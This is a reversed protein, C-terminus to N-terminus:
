LGQRATLARRRADASGFAPLWDRWITVHAPSGNVWRSDGILLAIDRPANGQRVQRLWVTELFPRMAGFSERVTLVIQRADAGAFEPM